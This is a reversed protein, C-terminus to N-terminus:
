HNSTLCEVDDKKDVAVFSLGGDWPGRGEVVLSDAKANEDM